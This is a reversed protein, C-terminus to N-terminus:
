YHWVWSTNKGMPELRIPSHAAGRQEDSSESPAAMDCLWHGGSTTDVAADGETVPVNGCHLAACEEACQRGLSNM